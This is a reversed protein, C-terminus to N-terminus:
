KEGKALQEAYARIAEESSNATLLSQMEAKMADLSQVRLYLEERVQTALVPTKFVQAALADRIRDIIELTEPFERNQAQAKRAQDETM